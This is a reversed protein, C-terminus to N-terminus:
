ASRQDSGTSQPAQFEMSGKEAAYCRHQAEAQVLSQGRGPIVSLFCQNCISQEPQGPLRKPIFQRQRTMSVEQKTRCFALFNTIWRHFELVANRLKCSELARAFRLAAM